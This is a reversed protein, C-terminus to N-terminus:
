QPIQSTQVVTTGTLREHWGLKRSDLLALIIWAIDIVPIAFLVLALLDRVVVLARSGSRGDADTVIRLGTLKRGPTMGFIVSFILRFLFVTIGLIFIVLGVDVPWEPGPPSDFTSSDAPDRPRYIWLLLITVTIGADVAWAAIRIGWPAPERAADSQENVELM